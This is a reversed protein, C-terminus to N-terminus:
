QKILKKNYINSGDSIKLFYVGSALDAVPIITNNEIKNYRILRGHIDTISLDLIDEDTDLSLYFNDSCPNPYIDLEESVTESDVSNEADSYYYSYSVLIQFVDSSSLTGYHESQLLM